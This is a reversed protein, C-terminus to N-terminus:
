FTPCKRHTFIPKQYDTICSKNLQQLYSSYNLAVIRNNMDQMDQTINGVGQTRKYNPINQCINQCRELSIPKPLSPCNKLIDRLTSNELRVIYEGQSNINRSNDPKVSIESANNLWKYKTDIMGNNSVVSSKVISSDETSTTESAKINTIPFTGCCGGHGKLAYGMKQNGGSLTRCLTRSLSQQGIYGQSRHGGNLSFQKMGVSMNNYQTQTKKKLTVISM